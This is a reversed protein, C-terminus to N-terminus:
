SLKLPLLRFTKNLNLFKRDYYNSFYNENSLSFQQNLLVKPNPRYPRNTSNANFKYNKQDQIDIFDDVVETKQKEFDASVQNVQRKKKYQKIQVIETYRLIQRM